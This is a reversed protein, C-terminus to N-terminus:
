NGTNNTNRNSIVSANQSQSQKETNIDQNPNEIEIKANNTSRKSDFDDINHNIPGNRSTANSLMM